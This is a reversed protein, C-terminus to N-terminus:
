LLDACTVRHGPQDSAVRLRANPLAAATETVDGLAADLREDTACAPASIGLAAINVGRHDFVPRRRM